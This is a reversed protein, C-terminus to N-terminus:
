RRPAISNGTQDTPNEKEVEFPKTGSSNEFIAIPVRSPDPHIMICIAGQTRAITDEPALRISNTDVTGFNIRTNLELNRITSPMKNRSDSVESTIEWQPQGSNSSSSRSSLARITIIQNGIKIQVPRNLYVYADKQPLVEYAGSKILPVDEYNGTQDPNTSTLRQVRVKNINQQDDYSVRLRRNGLPIPIRSVAGESTKELIRSPQM